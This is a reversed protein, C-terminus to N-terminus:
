DPAHGAQRAKSGIEWNQAQYHSLIWAETWTKPKRLKKIWFLVSHPLFSTIFRNLHSLSSTSSSPMQTPSPPFFVIASSPSSSSSSLPPPLFDTAGKWRHYFLTADWQLPTFHPSQLPSFVPPDIITSADPATWLPPRISLWREELPPLPSSAEIIKFRGKPQKNSMNNLIWASSWPRIRLRDQSVSLNM